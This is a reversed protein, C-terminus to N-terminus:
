VWILTLSYVWFGRPSPAFSPSSRDMPGEGPAPSIMELKNRFICKNRRILGLSGSWSAFCIAFSVTSSISCIKLHLRLMACRKVSNTSFAFGSKKIKCFIKTLLLNTHFRYRERIIQIFVQRYSILLVKLSDSWWCDLPFDKDRIPFVLKSQMWFISGKVACQNGSPTFNQFLGFNSSSKFKQVRNANKFVTVKKSFTKGDWWVERERWGKLRKAEDMMYQGDRGQTDQTGENRTKMGHDITQEENKNRKSRANEYYGKVMYM